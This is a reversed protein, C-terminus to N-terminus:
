DAIKFKTRRVRLHFGEQKPHMKRFDDSLDLGEIMAIIQHRHATPKWQIGDQKDIARLSVNWDGGIILNSLLSKSMGVEKLTKAFDQQTTLANPAYINRISFSINKFCINILM